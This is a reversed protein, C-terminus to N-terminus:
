AGDATRQQLWDAVQTFDDAVAYDLCAAARRVATGRTRTLPGGLADALDDSSALELVGSNPEFDSAAAASGRCSATFAARGQLRRAHDGRVAGRSSLERKARPTPKAPTGRFRISTLWSASSVESLPTWAFM